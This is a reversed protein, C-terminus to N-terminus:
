KASDICPNLLPLSALVRAIPAVAEVGWDMLMVNVAYLVIRTNEKTYGIKTNIRDLSPSYPNLNTRKSPKHDFDINTVACKFAQKKLAERCWVASLEFEMSKATARIKAPHIMRGVKRCIIEERAASASLRALNRGKVRLRRPEPADKLRPFKANSYEFIFRDIDDPNPLRTRKGRRGDRYYYVLKGHRSTEASVGVFSVGGILM